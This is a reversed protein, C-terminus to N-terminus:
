VHDEARRPCRCCAAPSFGDAARGGVGCARVDRSRPATRSPMAAQPQCLFTEPDRPRALSKPNALGAGLKLSFNNKRVKCKKQGDGIPQLWDGGSYFKLCYRLFSHLSATFCRPYFLPKEAPLLRTSSPRLVCPLLCVYPKSALEAIATPSHCQLVRGHKVRESGKDSRSLFAYLV